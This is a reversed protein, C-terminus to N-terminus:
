AAVLDSPMGLTSRSPRGSPPLTSLSDPTNARHVLGYRAHHDAKEAPDIIDKYYVTREAMTLSTRCRPLDGFSWSYLM